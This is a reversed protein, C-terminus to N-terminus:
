YAACTYSTASHVDGSGKYKPWKPYLCLPRTRGPVGMIDTVVLNEAPDLGKEVWNEIAGLQDWAAYFTTSISHAFGPVQYYRLFMDVKDAGLTAIQRQYFAESTRPSVAMDEQGHLIILKGGKAQFASLNEHEADIASLESLRSAYAGPNVPDLTLYNFSQNGTVAYRLWGDLIGAGFWMSSTVPWGPAVSGLALYAVYAEYPNTSPIGLDSTFVPWGPWSTEGSALSFNFTIPNNMVKLANIQADSLCTDGTDAGGACRVPVGNLLATSPDFASNCARVNGILGDSVGDLADCVALAASRLVGRKAFNPYAGSAAFAQTARVGALMTTTWTCGPYQSVVGDWDASFRSAVTLAEHGGGSSGIFYSKTPASGYALNMVYIATDRTKKLADGMWNRYAEQNGTFAASEPLSANQHGGDSGFVAYGKGLPTLKTPDNNLPNGKVNPISGDYGGGGFMVVKKNWSASSPLAIQFQINWAMSDVPTINGSVLCYDPLASAGTGSATVWQVATVVGGTTPLGISAAPIKQNALAGCAEPTMVRPQDGDGGSCANLLVVLLTSAIGIFLKIKRRNKIYKEVNLIIM